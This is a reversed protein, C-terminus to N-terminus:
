VEVTQSHANVQITYSGAAFDGELAIQGQYPRLIMPCFVDAPV